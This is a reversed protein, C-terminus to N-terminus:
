RETWSQGNEKGAKFEKSLGTQFDDSVRLKGRETLFTKPEDASATTAFAFLITGLIWVHQM